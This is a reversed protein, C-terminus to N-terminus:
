RHSRAVTDAETALNGPQLSERRGRAGLRGRLFEWWAGFQKATANRATQISCVEVMWLSSPGTTEGLNTGPAPTSPRLVLAFVPSASFQDSALIGDGEATSSLRAEYVLTAPAASQSNEDDGVQHSRLQYRSRAWNSASRSRKSCSRGNLSPSSGAASGSSRRLM